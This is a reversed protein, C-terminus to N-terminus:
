IPQAGRYGLRRSVTAAANMVLPALQRESQQSFHFVPMTIAIAAAVRGRRDLVVAAISAIEPIFEGVNLAYGRERISCLERELASADTITRETYCELGLALVEDLTSGVMQSLMAKGSATCHAPNRRGPAAIHKISGPGLAHEVNIAETKNWLSLSASERAREALEELYPRAVRVVDLEGLLRSALAILEVGLVFRGTEDDREVFRNHELTALTRSVASAHKGLRRAIENVGIPKESAGVVRLLNLARQVTTVEGVARGRNSPSRKGSNM